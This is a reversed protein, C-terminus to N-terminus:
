EGTKHGETGPISSAERYVGHMRCPLCVRSSDLLGSVMHLGCRPGAPFADLSSSYLEPLPWAIIGFQGKVVSRCLEYGIMGCQKVITEKGM